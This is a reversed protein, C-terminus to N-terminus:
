GGNGADGSLRHDVQEADGPAEGGEVGRLFPQLRESVSAVTFIAHDPTAIVGQAVRVGALPAHLKMAKRAAVWRDLAMEGKPVVQATARFKCQFILVFLSPAGGNM